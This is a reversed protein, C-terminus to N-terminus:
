DLPKRNSFIIPTLTQAIGKIVFPYIFLYKSGARDVTSGRQTENLVEESDRSLIDGVNDVEYTWTNTGDAHGLRRERGGNAGQGHLRSGLYALCQFQFWNAFQM